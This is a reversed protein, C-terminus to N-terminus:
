PPSFDRIIENIDAITIAGHWRAVLRGAPNYAFTVPVLDVREGVFRGAMDGDALLIPFNIANSEVFAATAAADAFGFGPYAMTVGVVMAQVPNERHFAILAPLEDVCHSCGPSWLNLMVWRGHGVFDELHYSAGDLGTLVEGEALPSFTVLLFWLFLLERM